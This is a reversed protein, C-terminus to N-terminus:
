SEKDQSVQADFGLKNSKLMLQIANKDFPGFVKGTPRKVYYREATM